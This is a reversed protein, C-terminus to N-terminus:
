STSVTRGLVPVAESDVLSFLGQIPTAEGAVLSRIAVGDGPTVANSSSSPSSPGVANIARVVFTYTTGNTLGTIVCSTSSTTCSAGGPSATATYGAIGGGPNDPADWTVNILGLAGM